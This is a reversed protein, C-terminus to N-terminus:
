PNPLWGAGFPFEIAGTVWSAPYVPEPYGYGAGATVCPKTGNAQWQAFVPAAIITASANFAGPYYGYWLDHSSTFGVLGACGELPNAPTISELAPVLRNDVFSQTSTIATALLTIADYSGCSTYIPQISFNGIYHNWFPLTLADKPNNTLTQLVIEYKCAGNTDNYFTGSQSPVDIGCIMFGPKTTAYAEDMQQAGYASIAPILLQAGAAQIESMYGAMDTSLTTSSVDFSINAVPKADFGLTPMYYALAENISTTWALNESIVAWKHIASMNGFLALGMYIRLWGLFQFLSTGLATSNIPEDRFFYKYYSYNATVDQTFSDDASGSGIFIVHANMITPLYATLAETRFGGTIFQAGDVSIIKQAASVGQSTDLSAAAEYTNEKILGFYYHTGNVVVGGASNIELARLCAGDWAGTGTPDTFDDLVGVKIVQSGSIGSPAGPVYYQPGTPALILYAGAVGVVVIVVVVIAIIRKTGTSMPM